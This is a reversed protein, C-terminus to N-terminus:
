LFFSVFLCVVLIKNSTTSKENLHTIIGTSSTSTTTNTVSPETANNAKSVPLSPENAKPTSNVPTAASTDSKEDMSNCSEESSVSRPKENATDKEKDSLPEPKDANSPLTASAKEDKPAVNAGTEDTSSPEVAKTDTEKREAEPVPTDPPDNTNEQEDM